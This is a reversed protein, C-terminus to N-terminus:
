QTAVISLNPLLGNYGAIVDHWAPNPKKGKKKKKKSSVKM